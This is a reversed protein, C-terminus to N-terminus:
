NLIQCPMLAYNHRRLHRKWSYRLTELYDTMHCLDGPIRKCVVCKNLIGLIRKVNVGLPCMYEIYCIASTCGEQLM